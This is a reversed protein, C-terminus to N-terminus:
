AGCCCGFVYAEAAEISCRQTCVHGAHLASWVAAQTSWWVVWRWVRATRCARCRHAAAAAKDSHHRRMCHTALACSSCPCCCIFTPSSSFCYCPDTRFCERRMGGYRSVMSSVCCSTTMLSYANQPHMPYVLACRCACPMRRRCWRSCVLVTSLLSVVSFTRVPKQGEAQLAQSYYLLGLCCRQQPQKSNTTDSM